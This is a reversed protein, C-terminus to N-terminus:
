KMEEEILLLSYETEKRKPKLMDGKTPVITWIREKSVEQNYWEIERKKQVPDVENVFLRKIAEICTIVDDRNAEGKGYQLRYFITVLKFVSPRFAPKNVAFAYEKPTWHAPRAIPRFYTLQEDLIHYAEIIAETFKGTELAEYLVKLALERSFKLKEVKERRTIEKPQDIRAGLRTLLPALKAVAYIVLALAILLGLIQLLGVASNLNPPERIPFRLTPFRIRPLFFIPDELLRHDPSLYRLGPFAILFLFGGGLSLYFAIEKSLSQIRTALLKGNTKETM